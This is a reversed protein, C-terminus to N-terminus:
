RWVFPCFFTSFEWRRRGEPMLVEGASFSQTGMGECRELVDKMLIVCDFPSLCAPGSAQVGIKGPM